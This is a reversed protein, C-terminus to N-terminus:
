AGDNIVASLAPAYRWGPDSGFEVGVSGARGDRMQGNVAILGTYLPWVRGCGGGDPKEAAPLPPCPSVLIRKRDIGRIERM